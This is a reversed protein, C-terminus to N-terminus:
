RLTQSNSFFLPIADHDDDQDKDDHNYLQFRHSLSAPSKEENTAHKKRM